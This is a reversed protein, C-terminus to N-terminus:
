YQKYDNSKVQLLHLVTGGPYVFIVFFAHFYKTYTM